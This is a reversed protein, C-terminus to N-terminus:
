ASIIEQIKIFKFFRYRYKREQTPAKPQIILHTTRKKEKRKKKKLFKSRIDSKFFNVYFNQFFVVKLCHLKLIVMKFHVSCYTGCKLLLILQYIRKQFHPLCAITIYYNVFPCFHYQKCNPLPKNCIKELKCDMGIYIM